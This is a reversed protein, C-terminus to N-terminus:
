MMQAKLYVLQWFTNLFEATCTVNMHFYMHSIWHSNQGNSNHFLLQNNQWSLNLFCIFNYSIKAKPQTPQFPKTPQYLQKTIHNSGYRAKFRICQCWPGWFSKMCTMYQPSFPITNEGSRAGSYWRAPSQTASSEQVEGLESALLIHVLSTCSSPPQTLNTWVHYLQEDQPLNM